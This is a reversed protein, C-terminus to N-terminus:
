DSTPDEETFFYFLAIMMLNYWLYKVVLPGYVKNTM